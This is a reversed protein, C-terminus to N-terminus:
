VRIYSYRTNVEPQSRTNSRLHESALSANNNNVNVLVICQRINLLTAQFRCLCIVFILKELKNSVLGEHTYVNDLRYLSYIELLRSFSPYLIVSALHRPRCPLFRSPNLPNTPNEKIKRKIKLWFIEVLAVQTADASNRRPVSPLMLEEKFTWDRCTYSKQVRM